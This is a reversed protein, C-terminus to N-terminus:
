VSLAFGLRPDAQVRPPRRIFAAMRRRRGTTRRLLHGAASLSAWKMPLEDLSGAAHFPQGFAHRCRAAPRPRRAGGQFTDFIHVHSIIGTILYRCLMGQRRSCPGSIAAMARQDAFLLMSVQCFDHYYAAAM